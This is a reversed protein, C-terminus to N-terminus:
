RRKIKEKNFTLNIVTNGNIINTKLDANYFYATNKAENILYNTREPADEWNYNYYSNEPYHQCHCLVIYLNIRHKCAIEILNETETCSYIGVILDINSLETNKTFLEKHAIINPYEIAQTILKPDYITITNEINGTKLQEEALYNALMPIAGCGMELINIDTGYIKQINKAHIYYFDKSKVKELIQPDNLKKAKNLIIKFYIQAIDHNTNINTPIGKEKLVEESFAIKMEDREKIKYYQGYNNYFTEFDEKNIYFLTNM